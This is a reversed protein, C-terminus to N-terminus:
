KVIAIDKLYARGNSFNFSLDVKKNIWDSGVKNQIDEDFVFINECTSGTTNTGGDMVLHLIMFDKGKNPGDKKVTGRDFGVLVTQM